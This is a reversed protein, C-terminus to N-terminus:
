HDRLGVDVVERVQIVVGRLPDHADGLADAAPHPGDEFRESHTHQHVAKTNRVGVKNQHRLLSRVVKRRVAKRAQLLTSDDETVFVYRQGLPRYQVGM